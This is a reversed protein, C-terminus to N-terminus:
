FYFVEDCHWCFTLIMWWCWVPEWASGRGLWGLGPGWWMCPLHPSGERGHRRSQKSIHLPIWGSNDPLIKRKQFYNTPALKFEHFKCILKIIRQVFWILKGEKINYCFGWCSFGWGLLGGWLFGSLGLGWSLCGGLGGLSWGLLGGGLWLLGGGLASSLLSNCRKWLRRFQKNIFVIM